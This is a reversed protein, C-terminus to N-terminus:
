TEPTRILRIALGAPIAVILGIALVAKVSVVFSLLVLLGFVAVDGVVCTMQMAYVYPLLPEREANQYYRSYFPTVAIAQGLGNFFNIGAIQGVSQTVLRIANTLGIVGAGNKLYGTIEKQKRQGVYFAIIISAIVAMSSLLGVGAYTPVILFIFLPWVNAAIAADVESGMNAILDRWIKRWPIGRLTYEEHKILEKGTFLPAAAAAFCLMAIVYLLTIGLWSAIAGGIAPAVGLSLMLLASSTGVAPAVKRHLLSRTFNARLQPWYLSIAIGWVLAILWLPWHYRTITALMLIQLGEGLLGLGMAKNFGIRNSWRLIPAQTIGWFVSALMFYVMIARISYHLKYLYIPVFITVLNSALGRVTHAWYLRGLEKLRLSHYATRHIHYPM